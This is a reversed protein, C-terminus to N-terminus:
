DGSRLTTAQSGSRLDFHRQRSMGDSRISDFKVNVTLAPALDRASLGAAAVFLRRDSGSMPRGISGRVINIARTAEVM